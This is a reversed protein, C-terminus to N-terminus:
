ARVRVGWRGTWTQQPALVVLDTGSSLAGAPATMPEVAIGRRRRGVEPVTDGTFVHLWGFSADVWLEVARSGDQWLVTAVGSADRALGTFPLDLPGAGVRRGARFDHATGAVDVTPMPLGRDDVPACRAAPLTLVGDDVLGVASLYPHMGAALPCDAPGVNQAAMTVTLGHPSLAYATTCRLTGPWGPQPHLVHEWTAATPTADVLDWPAWRTLGHIANGKAVESLPLQLDQGRWSWRGDRVRNPWPLLVQGRGATAMEGPGYGDVVPRGAVDYARLGGGVEVVVASQDGLVLEVQTGTPAVAM